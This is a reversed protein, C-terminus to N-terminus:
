RNYAGCLENSLKFARHLTKLGMVNEPMSAGFNKPKGESQKKDAGPLGFCALAFLRESTPTVKCIELLNAALRCTIM